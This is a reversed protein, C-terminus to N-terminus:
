SEVEPGDEQVQLRKLEAENLAMFCGAELGEHLRMM